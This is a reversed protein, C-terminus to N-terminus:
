KYAIILLDDPLSCLFQKCSFGKFMIAKNM